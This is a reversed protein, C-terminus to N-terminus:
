KGRPDDEIFAKDYFFFPIEKLASLDDMFEGAQAYDALRFITVQRRKQRLVIQLQERPQQRWTKLDNVMIKVISAHSVYINEKASVISIGGHQFVLAAKVRIKLYFYSVGFILAGSLAGTLIAGSVKYVTYSQPHFINAIVLIDPVFFFIVLIIISIIWAAHLIGSVFPIKKRLIVEYSM